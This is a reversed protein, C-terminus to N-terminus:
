ACSLGHQSRRARAAAKKGIGQGLGCRSYIFLSAPPEESGAAVQALLASAIEFAAGREAAFKRAILGCDSFMGIEFKGEEYHCEGRVSFHPPPGSRNDRDVAADMVLVSVFEPSIAPTAAAEDLLACAMEFAERRTETTRSAGSGDRKSLNVEFPM